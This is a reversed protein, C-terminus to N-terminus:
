NPLATRIVHSKGYINGVALYWYLKALGFERLSSEPLSTLRLETPSDQIYNCSRSQEDYLDQYKAHVRVHDHWYRRVRNHYVVSFTLM